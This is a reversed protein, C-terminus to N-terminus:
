NAGGNLQKDLYGEIQELADNAAETGECRAVVTHTLDFLAELASNRATLPAHIQVTVGVDVTLRVLFGVGRGKTIQLKM